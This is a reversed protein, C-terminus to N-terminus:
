PCAATHRSRRDLQQRHIHQQVLPDAVYEPRVHACLHQHQHPHGGLDYHDHDFLALNHHHHHSHPHRLKAHDRVM